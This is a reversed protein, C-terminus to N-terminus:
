EAPTEAENPANDEETQATEEPQQPAEEPKPAAATLRRSVEAVQEETLSREPIALIQGNPLSLVFLGADHVLSFSGDIPQQWDAANDRGDVHINLVNEYIRVTLQNGSTAKRILNRKTRHPMLWIIPLMGYCLAVYFWNVATPAKYGSQGLAGLINLVLIVTGFAFLLVSEIVLIYKREKLKGSVTFAAGVEDENLVFTADIPEGEPEIRPTEDPHDYAYDLEEGAEYAPLEMPEGCFVCNMKGEEDRLIAQEAGCAKCTVTKVAM